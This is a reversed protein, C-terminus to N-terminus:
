PSTLQGSSFKKTVYVKDISYYANDFRHSFRQVSKGSEDETYQYQVSPLSM